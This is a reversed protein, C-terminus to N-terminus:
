GGRESVDGESVEERSAAKIDPAVHPKPPVPYSEPSQHSMHPLPPPIVTHMNVACVCCVHVDPNDPHPDSTPQACTSM